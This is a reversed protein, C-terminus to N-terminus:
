SRSKLVQVVAPYGAAFAVLFRGLGLFHANAVHFMLMSILGLARGWQTAVILPFFTELVVTAHTIFRSFEPRSRLMEYLKKDGYSHTRAVREAATGNRWESGFMKAFGSAFYSAIIQCGIFGVALDSNEGGRTRGLVSAAHIVGAMQDAGDSGNLTYKSTFIQSCVIICASYKRVSNKQSSILSLGGLVRALLAARIVGENALFDSLRSETMTSARVYKWYNIGGRKREASNISELASLIQVIAAGNEAIELPKTRTYTRLAAFPRIMM